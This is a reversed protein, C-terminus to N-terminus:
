KMSPNTREQKLESIKKDLYEDFAERAFDSLTVEKSGIPDRKNNVVRRLRKLREIQDEWFNFSYRQVRRVKPTRLMLEGLNESREGTRGYAQEPTRAYADKEEVTLGPHNYTDDNGGPSEKIKPLGAMEIKEPKIKRKRQKLKSDFREVPPRKM